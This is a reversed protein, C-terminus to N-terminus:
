VVRRTRIILVIVAITLLAGIAVIAWIYVPTQDDPVVLNISTITTQQTPINVTATITPPDITINPIDATVIISTSTTTIDPLIVTLDSQYAAPDVMTHFNSIAGSRWYFVMDGNRFFGFVDDVDWGAMFEELTVSFYNETYSSWKSLTGDPGVARVRWYYDSDYTLKDGAYTYATTIVTKQDIVTTFTPDASLQFTYTSANPVASWGFSPHISAQNYGQAPNVPTPTDMYYKTTFAKADSWRSLEVESSIDSIGDNNVRVLVLYSTADALFPIVPIYDSTVLSTADVYIPFFYMDDLAGDDDSDYLFIIEYVEAGTMPSWSITASFPGINSVVVGTVKGSLTDDLLWVQADSNDITWAVNSGKTLWIEDSSASGGVAEDWETYPVDYLLYRAMDGDTDLVYLTDDASIAIDCLTDGLPNYGDIDGTGPTMAFNTAGISATYTDQGAAFYLVNKSDFAVYVNVSGAGISVPAELNDGADYSIYANGSDDGVVLVDKAANDPDFGTQLDISVLTATTLDSGVVATSWFGNDCAAYVSSSDYIAWDNITGWSATSKWPAFTQADNSSRYIEDEYQDYLMVVTGDMSFEVLSFNDIITNYEECLVRQWQPSAANVNTTKWVMDYSWGSPHYTTEDVTIMLATTSTPDFALDLIDDLYCDIFAIQNWTDGNDESISVASQMGGTAALVAGDTSGATSWLLNCTEYGSGTPSKSAMTWTIGNNWSYWVETYDFAMDYMGAVLMNGSVELSCFDAGDTPDVDFPTINGASGYFNCEISYIDDEDNAGWFNLAAFLTPNSTSSYDAAFELDCESKAASSGSEVVKEPTIVTGWLTSGSHRSILGYGNTLLKDWYVAWIVGTSNYDPAFMAKFVEVGGSPSPVDTDTYGGGLTESLEMDTWVTTLGNDDPVAFVDINTAALLWVDTGDFYSDLDYVYVAPQTGGDGATIQGLTGYPTGVAAGNTCRLITTYMVGSTDIAVYVTKDNKYDDSPEIASIHGVGSVCTATWAYGDASKWMKENALNYTASIAGYTSPTVDIDIWGEGFEFTDGNALTGSTLAGLSGGTTDIIKGTLALEAVTGSSSIKLTGKLSFSIDGDVDNINVAYTGDKVIYDPNVAWTGDADIAIDAKNGVINSITYTDDGGALTLTGPNFYAVSIFITGDEAQEILIVDSNPVTTPLTLTEWANITAAAGAASVAPGAVMFSALMSITMVIGLIKLLKNKM